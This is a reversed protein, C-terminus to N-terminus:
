ANALERLKVKDIVTGKQRPMRICKFTIQPQTISM